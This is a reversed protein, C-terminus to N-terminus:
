TDCFGISHKESFQPLSPIHKIIGYNDSDGQFPRQLQVPIYYYNPFDQLFNKIKKIQAKM